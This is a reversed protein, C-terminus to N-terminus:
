FPTTGFRPPMHFETTAPILPLALKDAAKRRMYKGEDISGMYDDFSATFKTLWLDEYGYWVDCSMVSKEQPEWEDIWEGVGDVVQGVQKGMFSVQAFTKFVPEGSQDNDSIYVAFIGEPSGFWYTQGMYEFNIEYGSETWFGEPRDRALNAPLWHVVDGTGHFGTYLKM